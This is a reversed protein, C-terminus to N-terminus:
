FACICISVMDPNKTAWFTQLCGDGGFGLFNGDIMCDRLARMVGERNNAYGQQEFQDGHGLRDLIHDVGLGLSGYRIPFEGNLGVNNFITECSRFEPLNAYHEFLPSLDNEAMAKNVARITREGDHMQGLFFLENNKDGFINLFQNFNVRKSM